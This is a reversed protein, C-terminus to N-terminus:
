RLTSVDREMRLAEVDMKVDEVKKCDPFLIAVGEELQVLERVRAILHGQKRKELEESEGDDCVAGYRKKEREGSVVISVLKEWRGLLGFITQQQELLLTRGREVAVASQQLATAANENGKTRMESAKKELMKEVRLMRTATERVHADADEEDNENDGEGRRRTLLHRQESLLALAERLDCVSASLARSAAENGKRQAEQAKLQLKEAVLHVRASVDAAM